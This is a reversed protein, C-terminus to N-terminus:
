QGKQMGFVQCAFLAVFEIKALGPATFERASRGRGGSRQIARKMMVPPVLVRM